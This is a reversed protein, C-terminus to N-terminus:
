SRVEEQRSCRRGAEARVLCGQWADSCWQRGHFRSQVSGRLEQFLRVGIAATAPFCVRGDRKIEFFASGGDKQWWDGKGNELRNEFHPLGIPRMARFWDSFLRMGM